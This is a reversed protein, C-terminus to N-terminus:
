VKLREIGPLRIAPHAVPSIDFIQGNNRDEGEWQENEKENNKM